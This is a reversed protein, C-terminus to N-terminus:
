FDLVSGIMRGGLEQLDAEIQEEEDDEDSAAFPNEKLRARRMPSAVASAVRNSPDYFIQDDTGTSLPLSQFVNAHMPLDPLVPNPPVSIQTASASRNGTREGEYMNLESSFVQYQSKPAIADFSEPKTLGPPPRLLSAILGLEGDNSNNGWSVNQPDMAPPSYPPLNMDRSTGNLFLSPSDPIMDTPDSPQYGFYSDFQCASQKSTASQEAIEGDINQQPAHYSISQYVPSSVSSAVHDTKSPPNNVKRVPKREEKPRGLLSEDHINADNRRANLRVSDKSPVPTPANNLKQRGGTRGPTAPKLADWRKSPAVPVHAAEGSAGGKNKNNRRSNQTRRSTSGTTPQARNQGVKSAGPRPRETRQEIEAVLHSSENAVAPTPTSRGSTSGVSSHDDVSSSISSSSVARDRLTVHPRDNSELSSPHLVSPLSPASDIPKDEALPPLTQSADEIRHDGEEENPKSHQTDHKTRIRGAGRSKAPHHHGKSRKSKRIQKNLQRLKQDPPTRSKLTRHLVYALFFLCAFTALAMASSVLTGYDNVAIAWCTSSSQLVNMVGDSDLLTFMALIFKHIFFHSINWRNFMSYSQIQREVCSVNPSFFLPSRALLDM